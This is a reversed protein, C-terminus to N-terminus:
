NICGSSKLAQSNWVINWEVVKIDITSLIVKKHVANVCLAVASFILGFLIWLMSIFVIRGDVTYNIINLPEFLSIHM